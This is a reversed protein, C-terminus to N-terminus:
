KIHSVGRVSIRKRGPLLALFNEQHRVPGTPFSWSSPIVLVVTFIGETIIGLSLQGTPSLFKKCLNNSALKALPALLLRQHRLTPALLLTSGACLVVLISQGL